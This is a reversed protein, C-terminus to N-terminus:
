HVDGVRRVITQIKATAGGTCLALGDLLEERVEKYFAAEMAKFSRM